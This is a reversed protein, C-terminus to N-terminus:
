SNRDLMRVIREAGRADVVDRMRGSIEERRATDACLALVEKLLIGALADAGLARIDGCNKMVGRGAFGEAGPIQNDALIYTLAPTQTACLEYLTSGAASIAADCSRMLGAMDKVDFHLCVNGTQKALLRLEETDRNMRGAVLHFRIEDGTGDRETIKRLIAVGLHESDAGGTSILIDEARKKTRRVEVSRFDKRLPAYEAGLLFLPTHDGYLREYEKEWGPAFINYNILVDCPYDYAALDDIYILKASSKACLGHLGELYEKTVAYSDVALVAAETDAILAAIEAIEETDYSGGNEGRSSLVKAEHGRASVTDAATREATLFTCKIGAEAAADAISLCRMLHGMGIVPNADARFFIRKM